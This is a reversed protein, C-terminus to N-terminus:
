LHRIPTYPYKEFLAVYGYYEELTKSNRLLQGRIEPTANNYIEDAIDHNLIDKEHELLTKTKIKFIEAATPPAIQEKRFGYIGAPQIEEPFLSERMRTNMFPSTGSGSLVFPMRHLVRANAIPSVTVGRAIKLDEESFPPRIINPPSLPVVTPHSVPSPSIPAAINIPRFITNYLKGAITDSGQVPVPYGVYPYAKGHMSRPHRIIRKKRRVTRTARAGYKEYMIKGKLSKLRKQLKSRTTKNQRQRLKKAVSNYQKVLKILTSRRPM